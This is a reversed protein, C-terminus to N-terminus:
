EIVGYEESVSSKRCQTSVATTIICAVSYSHFVFCLHVPRVISEPFNKRRAKEGRERERLFAFRLYWLMLYSTPCTFHIGLRSVGLYTVPLWLSDNM